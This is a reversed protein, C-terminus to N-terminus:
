YINMGLFCMSSLLNRLQVRRTLFNLNIHFYLITSKKLNLIYSFDRLTNLTIRGSRDTFAMGLMLRKTLVRRLDSGSNPCAPM